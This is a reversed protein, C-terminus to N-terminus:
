SSYMLGGDRVVIDGNKIVYKIPNIGLHYVLFPYNPIECLLLDMKKGAELSGVQDQLGLAYAANATVTNVAEEITM